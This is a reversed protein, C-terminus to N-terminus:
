TNNDMKYGDKAKIEIESRFQFLAIDVIERLDESIGKGTAIEEQNHLSDLYYVINNYPDIVCLIWHFLIFYSSLFKRANYPAFFVKRKSGNEKFVDVLYRSRNKRNKEGEECRGKLVSDYSIDGIPMSLWIIFLTMYILIHCVEIQEQALFQLLEEKGVRVTKSQTTIGIDIPVIIQESCDMKVICKYFMFMELLLTEMNIVRESQDVKQAEIDCSLPTKIIIDGHKDQNRLSNVVTKELVLEISWLVLTWIADNIVHCEREIPIPLPTNEKIAYDISVRVYGNPIPNTHVRTRTSFNRVKGPVIFRYSPDSLALECPTIGEPIDVKPTTNTENIDHINFAELDEEESHSDEGESRKKKMKKLERELYNMRSILRTVQDMYEKKSQLKGFYKSITVGVGVATVRGGHEKKGLAKYLVDECGADKFKGQECLHSFYDLDQEYRAYGRRAKKRPYLKAEASKRAAKSEWEKTLRSKVFDKWDKLKIFNYIEPPKDRIQGEESWIWNRSLESKFNTWARNAKTMMWKKKKQDVKYTLVVDEFLADLLRQPVMRWDSIIIPVNMRITTGWYSMM